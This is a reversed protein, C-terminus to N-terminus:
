SLYTKYTVSRLMLGSAILTVPLQGKARKDQQRQAIVEASNPKLGTGYAPGVNSKIRNEVLTKIRFGMADLCQQVTWGKTAMNELMELRWREILTSNDDMIPGLIPRAPVTKTGFENWLAVEVVSQGGPYAGADEHFGITVRAGGKAKALEARLKQIAKGGVVTTKIRSQIM